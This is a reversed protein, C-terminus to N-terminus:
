KLKDIYDLLNDYEKESLQKKVKDEDTITYDNGYDELEAYEYWHKSVEVEIEKKGVLLRYDKDIRSGVVEEYDITIEM